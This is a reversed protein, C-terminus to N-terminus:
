RKLPGLPGGLDGVVRTVRVARQFPNCATYLTKEMKRGATGTCILNHGLLVKYNWEVREILDRKRNDHAVLAINKIKNM